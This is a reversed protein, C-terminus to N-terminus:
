PLPVVEFADGALDFRVRAANNEYSVEPIVQDPNTTVILEYTGDPVDTIDIWQCLLSRSYTDQCGVTIGQNRSNYGRCGQPALAADFVGIDIVSFGAKAGIPLVEGAAVDYLDYAAYAEFHFHSHCESWTWHPLEASPMGLQLDATGINAIQTGFRLLKRNGVDRVCREEILCPDNLEQHTIQLTSQLYDQVVM